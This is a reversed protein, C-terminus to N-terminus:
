LTRNIIQEQTLKRSKKGSPLKPIKKVFRIGGTLENYPALKDKVLAHLEAEDVTSFEKVVVIGTPKMQVGEETVQTDEGEDHREDPLGIVCSELVGPHSSLVGEIESPYIKFFLLL